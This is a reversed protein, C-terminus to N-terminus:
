WWTEKYKYNKKGWHKRLTDRAVQKICGTMQNQVENSNMVQNWDGQRKLRHQATSSEQSPGDNRIFKRKEADYSFYYIYIRNFASQFIM